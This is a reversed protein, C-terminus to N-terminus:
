AGVKPCAVANGIPASVGVGGFNSLCPVVQLENLVGLNDGAHAPAGLALAGAAIALVLSTKKLM